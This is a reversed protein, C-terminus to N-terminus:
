SPVKFGSLSEWTDHFPDNEIVEDVKQLYGEVTVMYLGRENEDFRNHLNLYEQCYIM